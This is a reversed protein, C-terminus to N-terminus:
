FFLRDGRQRGGSTMTLDVSRAIHGSTALHQRARKLAAEKDVVALESREPGDGSNSAEGGHSASADGASAVSTSGRAGSAIAQASGSVAEVKGNRGGGSSGGSGSTGRDGNIGGGGSGCISTSVQGKLLLQGPFSRSSGPVTAAYGTRGKEDDQARVLKFGDSSRKYVVGYLYRGVFVCM